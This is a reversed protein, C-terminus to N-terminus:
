PKLIFDSVKQVQCEKNLELVGLLSENFGRHSQPAFHLNGLSYIIRKGRYTESHQKRHPHSGAIFDVGNNILWKAAEHQEDSVKTTYEDGWHPLGIITKVGRKRAEGISELLSKKHLPYTALGITGDTAPLVDSEILNMAIFGVKVCGVDIVKVATAQKLTGAGVYAVGQKTLYDMTDRLGQEGGDGAHNNALSLLSFHKLSGAKKDSVIYNFRKKILPKARDSIVCELNAVLHKAYLSPIKEVPFPKVDGHLCIDGGISLYEVEFDNEHRMVTFARGKALEELTILEPFGGLHHVVIDTKEVVGLEGTDQYLMAVHSGLHIVDTERVAGSVPRLFKKIQVPNCWPIQVGAKRYAYVLFNACDNGLLTEAGTEGAHHLSGIGFVYPSGFQEELYGLLGFSKSVRIEIVESFYSGNETVVEAQIKVIGVEYESHLFDRWTRSALASDETEAILERQSTIYAPADNAFGKGLGAQPIINYNQHMPEHLWWRVHKVNKAPHRIWIDELMGDKNHRIRWVGDISVQTNRFELVIDERGKDWDRLQAEWALPNHLVSIQSQKRVLLQRLEHATDELKFRPPPKGKRYYMKAMESRDDLDTLYPEYQIQSTEIALACEFATHLLESAIQKDKQWPMSLAFSVARLREWKLVDNWKTRLNEIPKAIDVFYDLDISVIVEGLSESDYGRKFRQWDTVIYSEALLGAERKTAQYHFDLHNRAEKQKESIEKDTLSEGAIWIVRSIPRPMLPEIWNFPQIVGKQRLMDINRQREDESTVRRLSARLHDSSPIGSADSHADILVLTYSKELDLQRGFFGFSGAHSDEIYIPLKNAHSYGLCLSFVLLMLSLRAKM